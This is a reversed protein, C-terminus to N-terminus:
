VDGIEEISQIDVIIGDPAVGPHLNRQILHLADKLEQDTGSQKIEKLQAAAINDVIISTTSHKVINFTIKKM